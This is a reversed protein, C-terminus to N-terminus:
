AHRDRYIESDVALFLKIVYSYCTMFMILPVRLRISTMTVKATPESALVAMAAPEADPVRDAIAVTLVLQVTFEGVSVNAAISGVAPMLEVPVATMETAQVLAVVSVSMLSPGPACWIALPERCNALPATNM